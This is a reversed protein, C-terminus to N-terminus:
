EAIKAAPRFPVRFFFAAVFSLATVAVIISFVDNLAGALASNLSDHLMDALTHGDPGAEALQTRLSETAFQDDLAAPRSKLAELADQPLVERVRDPITQDLALSFNRAMLAGLVAIGLMGGLSRFFQLASTAAGVLAFPVTNQVAVSLTAVTGGFGLGAISIHFASALQSTTENMTSLLYMGVAMIGTSALTQKRYHGGTRSLLQGSVIGGVVMGLLMPILLNGSVTASVELVAQFFLPLFLVSGYLGLSTLLTVIVALGVVRDAYIGLPMIPASARTEIITFLGSMTLGFTLLGIILPTSWAYQVGGWSLAFLIPVVALILAIMGPLDLQPTESARHHTPYIKVILALVPIGSVALLIFVWQWSLREAVFGGLIPGAVSAVGFAAGILGHYKGRDEPRFLDAISIYCCTMVIGGGAGQLARFVVVQTMSASLGVLVSGATFVMMGIILFRKRGYIDSLRGVVPYAVTAAVIYSTVAWAYHEFGGTDAVMMPLITTVVTQSLAALIMALMVCIMSLRVLRAPPAVFDEDVPFTAAVERKLSSVPDTKM